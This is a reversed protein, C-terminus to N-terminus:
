SGYLSIEEMSSSLERLSKIIRLGLYKSIQDAQEEGLDM